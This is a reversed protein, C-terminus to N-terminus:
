MLILFPYSDFLVWREFFLVNHNFLSSARKFPAGGRVREEEEEEEEEERERKKREGEEKEM